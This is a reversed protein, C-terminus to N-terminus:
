QVFFRTRRLLKYMMFLIEDGQLLNALNLRLMTAYLHRLRRKEAHELQELLQEVVEQQIRVRTASQKDHHKFSVQERSVRYKLLEEPLVYIKGGKRAIDTWLKYDEAFPYNKYYIRNMRLFDRQIMASPHMLYNGTLLWFYANDIYGRVHHGIMKETEGFTTGWSCCVAIDPDSEMVDVQAALRHPVMMDDADIRAIYKGTCKRLGTNLSRIYDHKCAVLKIRSDQYRRIVQRTGDTSGDDVIIFEFNRYTQALVSDIASAIVAEANYACLMVSVM